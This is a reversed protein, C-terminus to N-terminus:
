CLPLPAAGHGVATRPPLFPRTDGPPKLGLVLLDNLYRGNYGGFLLIGSRGAVLCASTGERGLTAGRATHSFGTQMGGWESADVDLLLVGDLGQRGDGGGVVLMVGDVALAVHGARAEPVVDKSDMGASGSVHERGQLPHWADAITGDRGIQLTQTDDLATMETTGGFLVLTSACATHLYVLSADTRPCPAGLAQVQTWLWGRSEGPAPSLMWLDNLLMGSEQEGGFLWVRGEAEVACHGGRCSPSDGLAQGITCNVLPVAGSVHEVSCAGDTGDKLGFCIISTMSANGGHGGIVIVDSGVLTASHGAVPLPQHGCVQPRSWALATLSLLHIDALFRSGHGGFLLVWDGIVTASHKYRPSPAMGRVVPTSWTGVALSKELGEPPVIEQVVRRELIKAPAAKAAPAPCTPTSSAATDTPASLLPASSIGPSNEGIAAAIRDKLGEWQMWGPYDEELSRVYLFMAEIKSTNGLQKWVDWKAREVRNWLHPSPKDCSGFVAQQRLGYFMLQNEVTMGKSLAQHERVHKTLHDSVLVALLPSLTISIRFWQQFSLLDTFSPQFEGQNLSCALERSLHNM